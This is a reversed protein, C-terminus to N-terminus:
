RVINVILYLINHIFVCYPEFRLVVNQTIISIVTLNKTSYKKNDRIRTTTPTTSVQISTPLFCCSMIKSEFINLSLTGCIFQQEESIIFVVGMSLKANNIHKYLFFVLHPIEEKGSEQLTLIQGRLYIM